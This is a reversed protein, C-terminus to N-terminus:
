PRKVDLPPRRPSQRVAPWLRPRSPRRGRVPGPQDPRPPQPWEPPIRVPGAIAEPWEIVEESQIVHARADLWLEHREECSPSCFQADPRLM